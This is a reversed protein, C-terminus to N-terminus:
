LGQLVTRAATLFKRAESILDQVEHRQFQRLKFEAETHADHLMALCTAMDRPMIGTKVFHNMFGSLLKRVDEPESDNLLLLAKAALHAAYYASSVAIAYLRKEMLADAAVLNRQARSMLMKMRRNLYAARVQDAKRRVGGLLALRDRYEELQEEPMALTTVHIGMEQLISTELEGVSRRTETDMYKGKELVAVGVLTESEQWSIVDKLSNGLLRSLGGKYIEYAEQM